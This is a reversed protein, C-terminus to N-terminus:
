KIAIPHIPVGLQFVFKKFQVVYENNVCTGEPFILLPTQGPAAVHARMREAVLARDRVETRNFWRCGLCNLVSSFPPPPPDSSDRKQGEVRPGM